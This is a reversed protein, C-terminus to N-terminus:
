PNAAVRTLDPLLFEGLDAHGDLTDVSQGQVLIRVRKVTRINVVISNVLADIVLSESAIGPKFQALSQESFDLYATGDLTLFVGRISATPPLARTLGQRSGEVLALVVQRIRDADAAAWSIQRREEVLAGLEYSPFYLKATEEPRSTQLAAETLKTRAMEAAHQPPPEVSRIESLNQLYVGGAALIAVVVVAIVWNREEM